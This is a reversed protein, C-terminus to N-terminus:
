STVLFAKTHAEAVAELEDVDDLARLDDNPSYIRSGVRRSAVLPTSEDLDDLRGRVTRETVDVDLCEAVDEGTAAPVPADTAELLAALLEGDSFKPRRGM